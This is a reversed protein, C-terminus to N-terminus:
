RVKYYYTNNNIKIEIEVPTDKEEEATKPMEALYYIKKSTLPKINTLSTYSFGLINDEIASFSSYTYYNNYKAKISAVNDADLELSSVNKAELVVCLYTNNTDKVQYYTYFQPQTPPNIRQGFKTELIKVEWDKEKINEGISIYKNEVEEIKSTNNTTLSSVDINKSINKIVTYSVCIPIVFLVIFLILIVIIGPHQLFYNRLDSKCNPCVKVKEDIESLCYKCKKM